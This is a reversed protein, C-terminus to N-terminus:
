EGKPPGSFNSYETYARQGASLISSLAEQQFYVAFLAKTDRLM